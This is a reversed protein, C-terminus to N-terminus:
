ASLEKSRQAAASLTDLVIEKLNSTKIVDMGAVTTGKASSISKILSETTFDAQVLLKATGLMTQAAMLAAQDANLGLKTGAEAM